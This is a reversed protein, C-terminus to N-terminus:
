VFDAQGDTHGKCAIQSKKPDRLYVTLFVANAFQQQEPQHQQQDNTNNDHSERSVDLLVVYSTRM